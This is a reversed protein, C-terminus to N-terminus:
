LQLTVLQTVAGYEGYKCHAYPAGGGRVACGEVAPAGAGVRIEGTVLVGRM